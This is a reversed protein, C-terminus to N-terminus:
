VYVALPVIFLAPGEVAIGLPFDSEPNINRLGLMADRFAASVLHGVLSRSLVSWSQGKPVAGVAKGVVRVRGFRLDDLSADRLFGRQLSVLGTLGPGEISACVTPSAELEARLANFMQRTEAPVPGMPSEGSEASLAFLREMVNVFEYVPNRVLSGSLEVFTGDPIAALNAGSSLRVVGPGLAELTRHFLSAVTQRQALAAGPTSVGVGVRGDLDVGLSQLTGELKLGGELAALLSTMMPVDLYLPYAISM